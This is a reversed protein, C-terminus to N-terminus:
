EIRYIRLQKTAYRLRQLIQVYQKFFFQLVVNQRLASSKCAPRTPLLCPLLHSSNSISCSLLRVAMQGLCNYCIQGGGATGTSPSYRPTCGGTAASIICSAAITTRIHQTLLPMLCPRHPQILMIAIALGGYSPLVETTLCHRRGQSHPGAPLLPRLLSCALSPSHGPM